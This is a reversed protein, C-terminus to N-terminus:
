KISRILDLHNMYVGNLMDAPTYQLYIFGAIQSLNSKEYDRLIGKGSSHGSNGKRWVGGNVEIIVAEKDFERFIHVIYDAIFKRDKLIKVEKQLIYGCSKCFIELQSEYRRKQIAYKNM